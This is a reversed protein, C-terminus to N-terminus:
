DLPRANRHHSTRRKKLARLQGGYPAGGVLPVSFMNRMGDGYRRVSDQVQLALERTPTLILAQVHKEITPKRSM